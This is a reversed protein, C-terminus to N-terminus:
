TIIFVNFVNFVHYLYFRLFMSFISSVRIILEVARPWDSKSVHRPVQSKFFVFNVLATTYRKDVKNCLISTKYYLHLFLFYFHLLRDHGEEDITQSM